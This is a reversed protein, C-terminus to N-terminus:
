KGEAKAILATMTSCEEWHDGDLPGCKEECFDSQRDKLAKLLDPAAAILHANATSEEVADQATDHWHCLEAVATQYNGGDEQEFNATSRITWAHQSRAATEAIWPGETHKSESM